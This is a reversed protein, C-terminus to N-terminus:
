RVERFLHPVSEGRSYRSHLTGYKLGLKEAWQKINLTEGDHTLWITSTRNTAQESMPIWTCNNPSYGKNVDIREISLDDNYGNSMAWKKFALFDDKWEDCVVIGREGYNKYSSNNPNVCRQKLGLWRNHLRSKSQKHTHNVMVNVIAQEDRLCGCSKTQTQLSDSRVSKLNGCDCECLWYAKRSKRSYDRELVTLMGFKQGDLNKVSM